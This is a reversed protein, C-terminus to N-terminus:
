SPESSGLLVAVEAAIADMRAEPVAGDEAVGLLSFVRPGQQEDPLDHPRPIVHVHVHPHDPHEAFQAVYTKDCGVVEQLAASVRKLLPGLEAAEADTLDAVSTIHRRVVLVLWGERATGFAHVVDWHDTRVIRDWPPAAGADRRAVLACTVCDAM